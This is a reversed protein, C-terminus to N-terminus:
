YKRRNCRGKVNTYSFTKTKLIDWVFEPVRMYVDEELKAYLYATKVDMSFLHLHHEVAIAM